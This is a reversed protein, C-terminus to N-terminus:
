SDSPNEERWKKMREEADLQKQQEKRSVKIILRMVLVAMIFFVFFSIAAPIYESKDEPFYLFLGAIFTM